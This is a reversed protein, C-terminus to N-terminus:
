GEPITVMGLLRLLGILDPLSPFSLNGNKIQLCIYLTYVAFSTIHVEMKLIAQHAVAAMLEYSYYSLKGYAWALNALNQQSFEGIQTTAEEAMRELLPAYYYGPPMFQILPM